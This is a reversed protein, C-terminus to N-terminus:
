FEIGTLVKYVNVPEAKGKVKISGLQQFKFLDQVKLYTSEGVLISMPECNSELRSALNVSDGIVTYEMRSVSGINGATVIGTNIGIRIKFRKKEDISKWYQTLKVLMDMACRIANEADNGVSYPAGFVAMVADGIYKNLYGHNRSVCDAMHDFYGNLLFAIENPSLTESLTTFGKIDSFLITVEREQTELLSSDLDLKKERVLRMIEAGVHKELRGLLEHDQRQKTELNAKALAISTLHGLTELFDIDAKSLSFDSRTADLYIFGVLTKHDILPVGVALSLPSEKLKAKDLVFLSQELAVMNLVPAYAEFRAAHDEQGRIKYAVPSIESSQPHILYVCGREVRLDQFILSLALRLVDLPSNSSVAARHLQQLLAIRRSADHSGGTRPAAPSAAEAAPAAAPTAPLAAGGNKLVLLHNGIIIQDGNKLAQREVVQARNVFTGNMSSLNEVYCQGGDVFFRAHKRSVLPDNPLILGCDNHRGVILEAQDLTVSKGQVVGATVELVFASM